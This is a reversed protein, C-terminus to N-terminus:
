QERHQPQGNVVSVNDGFAISLQDGSAGFAMLNIPGHYHSLAPKGKANVQVLIIDGNGCGIALRDKKIPDWSLSLVKSSPHRFNDVPEWNATSYILVGGTYDGAALFECDESFELVSLPKGYSQDLFQPARAATSRTDLAEM